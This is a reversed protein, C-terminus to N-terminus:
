TGWGPTQDATQPTSSGFTTTVPAYQGTKPNYAYRGAQAALLALTQQQQATQYNFIGAAAPNPAAVTNFGFQTTAQTGANNAATTAAQESTSVAFPSYAQEALGAWQQAANAGTQTLNLSAIGLDRATLGHAMGTGAFGGELSQFASSRMIQAKVDDPLEGSLESSTNSLGKSLIDSFGPVIKNLYETISDFNASNADVAKGAEAGLDTPVFPAIAPKKGFVATPNDPTQSANYAGYAATGVTVAAAVWSM